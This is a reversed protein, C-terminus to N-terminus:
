YLFLMSSSTSSIVKPQYEDFNSRAHFIYSVKEINLRHKHLRDLDIEVVKLFKQISPELRKISFKPIDSPSSTWRNNNEFSAMDSINM